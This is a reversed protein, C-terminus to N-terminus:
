SLRRFTFENCGHGDHTNLYELQLNFKNHLYNFVEGATAYEYPFGGLWDRVDHRFDMGRGDGGGYHRIVKFPNRLTLFRYLIFSTVYAYELLYRFIYPSHNYFRKIHWWMASGGVYNEVHNYIAIALIGGPKVKSVTNDIAQWMAGTHYLVGWAYVIDAPDLTNLFEQDLISGQLIQWKGPPINARTRMDMSAKVSDPDYDFAVVQEAGLLCAALSFLGSGCGIDLFTKGQLDKIKLLRRLSDV